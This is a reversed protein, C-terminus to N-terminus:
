SCRPRRRATCRGGRRGADASRAPPSSGGSGARLAAAVRPDRMAAELAGGAEGGIRHLQEARRVAVCAPDVGLEIQRALAELVLDGARHDLRSRQGRLRAALRCPGEEAQELGIMGFGRAVGIEGPDVRDPAARSSKTVRGSSASRMPACGRQLVRRRTTAPREVRDFDGPAIGVARVLLASAVPEGGEEHGVAGCLRWTTSRSLSRVSARRWPVIRRLPWPMSSSSVVSHAVQQICPTKAASSM